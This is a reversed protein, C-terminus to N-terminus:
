TAPPETRGSNGGGPARSATEIVFERLVAYPTMGRANCVELFRRATEVRVRTGVTALHQGDWRAQPSRPFRGPPNAPRPGRFIATRGDPLVETYWEGSPLENM